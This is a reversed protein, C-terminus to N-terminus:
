NWLGHRVEGMLVSFHPYYGFYEMELGGGVQYASLRLSPNSCNHGMLLENLVGAKVGRCSLCGPGQGRCSVGIGRGLAGRGRGLAGLRSWSCGSRSVSLDVVDVPLPTPSGRV